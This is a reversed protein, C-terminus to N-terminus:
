KGIGKTTKDITRALWSDYINDAISQMKLINQELDALIAERTQISPSASLTGDDTGDVWDRVLDATMEVHCQMALANGYVFAQNRCHESAWVHTAGNPLDFTEGHWHFATFEHPLSPFWQRAPDNDSVSVPLWGYEPVPNAHVSAGMAKAILQGGLCHGLLLLDRDLAQRILTLASPIWPLDDNVSMPGGMFVIGSLNDISAPINEGEDIALVRYPTSRKDLFEALYGPGEHEVHRIILIEKM